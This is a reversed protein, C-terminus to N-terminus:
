VEFFLHYTWIPSCSLYSVEKDVCISNNPQNNKLYFRCIYCTVESSPREALGPNIQDPKLGIICKCSKEFKDKNNERYDEWFSRWFVVSNNLQKLIKTKNVLLTLYLDKCKGRTDSIRGCIYM